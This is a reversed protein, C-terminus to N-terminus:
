SPSSALKTVAQVHEFGYDCSPFIVTIKKRNETLYKLICDANPLGIQLCYNISIIAFACFKQEVM